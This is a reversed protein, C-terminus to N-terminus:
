ALGYAWTRARCAGLRRFEEGNAFMLINVWSKGLEMAWGARSHRVEDSSAKVSLLLFRHM